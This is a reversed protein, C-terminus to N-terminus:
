IVLYRFSVKAAIGVFILAWLVYGTTVWPSHPRAGFLWRYMAWLGLTGVFLLVCGVLFEAMRSDTTSALLFLVPAMLGLAAVGASRLGALIAVGLERLHIEEGAMSSGIYLAPVLVAIVIAICAPLLAADHIVAFAGREIGAIAGVGAIGMLGLFLAHFLRPEAEKRTKSM